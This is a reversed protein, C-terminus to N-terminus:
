ATDLSSSRANASPSVRMRSKSEHCRVWCVALGDSSSCLGRDPALEPPDTALAATILWYPLNTLWFGLKISFPLQAAVMRNGRSLVHVVSTGEKRAAYGDLIPGFVM